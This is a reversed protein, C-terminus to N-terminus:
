GCSIHNQCFLLFDQSEIAQTLSDSTAHIQDHEPCTFLCHKIPALLQRKDFTTIPRRIVHDTPSSQKQIAAPGFRAKTLIDKLNKPSTLAVIPKM